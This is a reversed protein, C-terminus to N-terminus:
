NFFIKLKIIKQIFFNGMKLRINNQNVSSLPSTNNRLEDNINNQPSLVSNSSNSIGNSNNNQNSPSLRGHVPRGRGRVNPFCKKMFEEVQGAFQDM